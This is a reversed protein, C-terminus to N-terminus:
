AFCSLVYPTFTFGAFQSIDVEEADLREIDRATIGYSNRGEIDYGEFDFGKNDWKSHTYVHVHNRNFRRIDLGQTDYKGGTIYNGNVNFGRHNFHRNSCCFRALCDSYTEYQDYGDWDLGNPDFRTKTERHIGFVNFGHGDFEYGNHTYKKLSENWEWGFEKIRSMCFGCRTKSPIDIANVFNINSLSFLFVLVCAFFSLRKM